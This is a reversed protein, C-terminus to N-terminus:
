ASRPWISQNKIEVYSRSFDEVEPHPATSEASASLTAGQGAALASPPEKPIM